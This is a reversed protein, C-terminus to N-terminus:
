WKTTTEKFNNFSGRIDPGITLLKTVDKFPEWMGKAFHFVPISFLVEPMSQRSVRRHMNILVDVMAGKITNSKFLVGEIAAFDPWNETNSEWDPITCLGQFLVRYHKEELFKLFYNYGDRLLLSDLRHIVLLLIIASQLINFQKDQKQQVKIGFSDITEVLWKSM